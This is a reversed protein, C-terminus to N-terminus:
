SSCVGRPGQHDMELPHPLPLLETDSTEWQFEFSTFNDFPRAKEDFMQVELDLYEGCLVPFQPLSPPHLSSPPLLLSPLPPPLFSPSSSPPLPPLYLYLSFLLSSISFFSPPSLVYFFPLLLLSPIILCLVFSHCVNVQLIQSSDETYLPCNPMRSLVPHVSM